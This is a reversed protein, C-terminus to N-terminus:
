PDSASRRGKPRSRQREKDMPRERQAEGETPEAAAGQERTARQAEGETPEAAAGQEHTARAGGRRDAGSGSGPVTAPTVVSTSNTSLPAGTLTSASRSRPSDSSFTNRRSPTTEAFSPHAGCPCHPHQVTSTSPSGRTAQTVGAARTAPRVTVVTSPSSGVARSAAAAANRAVPPECHPNQVGPMTMRKAPLRSLSTFRESAACRHRQVPQNVTSSATLPTVEGAARSRAAARLRRPARSRHGAARRGQPEARRRATRRRCQVVYRAPRPGAAARNPQRRPSPPPDAIPRRRTTAPCRSDAAFTCPRRVVTAVPAGSRSRM